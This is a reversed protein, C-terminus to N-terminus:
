YKFGTIELRANLQSTSSPLEATNRKLDALYIYVTPTLYINQLVPRNIPRNM